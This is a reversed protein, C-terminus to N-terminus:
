RAVLAPAASVPAPPNLALLLPATQRLFGAKEAADLPRSDPSKVSQPDLYRGNLRYEYHLHPGTALGTMGVYAVTQGQRVRTGVRAMPAFRSLHGYVTVIGGGHDIELLNGYGGKIGRFRVRGDGAARVPTGTPAAYDVGQHARIRNLIPHVRARSFGSSARQFELPARLFAKQMSRGDPGYYRTSGDSARYRVARVERGQNTFSAALIAGDQLYQGQQFIRQYSVTFEDGTRLDQAFDIDWAFIKALQLVTPDALGASQAADFLSSDIVGHAVQAQMEIPRAVVDTKFNDGDRSVKLTETLSLNRELGVLEGDRHTLRLSEGPMLRDLMARAGQLARINALDTLSLELKRFIADLTDNRRVIVEITALGPAVSMGASNAAAVPAPAPLATARVSDTPLAVLPRVFPAPAEPMAKAPWYHGIAWAGITVLAFGAVIRRASVMKAGYGLRIRSTLPGTRRDALIM